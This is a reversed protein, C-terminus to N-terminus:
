GKWPEFGFFSVRNLPITFQDNKNRAQAHMNGPFTVRLWVRDRPVYRYIAYPLIGGGGGQFETWEEYLKRRKQQFLPCIFRWQVNSCKCWKLKMNLIKTMPCPHDIKGM